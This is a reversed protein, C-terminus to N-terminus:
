PGGGPVAGASGSKRCMPDNSSWRRRVNRRVFPPIPEGTPLAVTGGDAEGSVSVRAESVFGHVVDISGNGRVRGALVPQEGVLLEGLQSRGAGQYSV